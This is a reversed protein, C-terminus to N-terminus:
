PWEVALSLGPRFSYPAVVAAHGDLGTVNYARKQPDWELSPTLSVAM